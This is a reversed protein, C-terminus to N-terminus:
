HATTAAAFHFAAASANLGCTKTSFVPVCRDRVELKRVLTASRGLTGHLKRHEVATKRLTSANSDPLLPPVLVFPPIVHTCCTAAAITPHWPTGLVTAASNFREATDEMVRRTRRLRGTVDKSAQLVASADTSCCCTIPLMSTNCDDARCVGCVTVCAHIFAARWNVSCWAQCCNHTRRAAAHFAAACVRAAAKREAELHGSCCTPGCSTITFLLHYKLWHWHYVMMHSRVARLRSRLQDHVQHHESQAQAVTQSVEDGMTGHPFAIALEQSPPDVHLQKHIAYMLLLWMPHQVPNSRVALMDKLQKLRRQARQRQVQTAAMTDEIQGGEDSSDIDDDDDRAGKDTLPAAALETLGRVDNEIQTELKIIDRLLEMTLVCPPTFVNSVWAPTTDQHTTNHHNQTKGKDCPLM